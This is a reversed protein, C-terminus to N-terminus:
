DNAVAGNHDGPPDLKSEDPKLTVAIGGATKEIAAKGVKEFDITEAREIRAYLDAAPLIEEPVFGAKTHSAFVFQLYRYAEEPLLLMKM